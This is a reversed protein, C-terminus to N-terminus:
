RNVNGKWDFISVAVRGLLPICFRCVVTVLTGSCATKGTGTMSERPLIILTIGRSRFVLPAPPDM